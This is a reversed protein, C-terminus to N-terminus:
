SGHCQIIWHARKRRTSTLFNKRIVDNVGNGQTNIFKGSDLTHGENRKRRRLFICRSELILGGPGYLYTGCGYRRDPGGVQEQKWEIGEIHM